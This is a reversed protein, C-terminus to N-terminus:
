DPPHADLARKPSRRANVAFQELEAELDRLRANRLVHDFPTSWWILSPASEQAIM